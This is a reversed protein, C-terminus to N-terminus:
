MHHFPLLVRFTTTGSFKYSLSANAVSSFLFLEAGAPPGASLLFLVILNPVVFDRRLGVLPVSLNLDFMLSISLNQM